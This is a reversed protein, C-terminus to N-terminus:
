PVFAPSYLREDSSLCKLEGQHQVSNCNLTSKASLKFLPIPPIYFLAQRPMVTVVTTVTYCSPETDLATTDRGERLNSSRTAKHTGGMKPKRVGNLFMHSASKSTRISHHLTSAHKEPHVGAALSGGGGM